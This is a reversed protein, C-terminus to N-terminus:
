CGNFLVLQNMNEKLIGKLFLGIAKMRPRRHFHDILFHLKQYHCQKQQSFEAVQSKMLYEQASSSSGYRKPLNPLDFFPKFVLFFFFSFRADLPPTFFRLNDFLGNPNGCHYDWVSDIPWDDQPPVTANFSDFTLPNEGPGGETLFGWAGGWSGPDTLWYNPPEWSYPGSM